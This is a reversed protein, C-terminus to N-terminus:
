ADRVIRKKLNLSLPKYGKAKIYKSVTSSSRGMIKAVGAYTGIESYLKYMRDIEQPTVRKASM